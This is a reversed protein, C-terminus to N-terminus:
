LMRDALLFAADPTDARNAHSAGCDAKVEYGLYGVLGLDFDFPLEEGHDTPTLAHLQEELRELVPGPREVVGDRSEIRVIGAHADYTILRAHPGSGDGMYSFRGRGPERSSTDLWFSVDAAAFGARFVAEADPEFPLTELVTRYEQQSKNQQATSACVDLFNEALRM